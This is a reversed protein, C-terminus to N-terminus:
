KLRYFILNFISDADIECLSIVTAIIALPVLVSPVLARNLVPIYFIYCWKFVICRKSLLIPFASGHNKGICM